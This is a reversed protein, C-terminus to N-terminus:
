PFRLDEEGKGGEWVSGERACGVFQGTEFCDGGGEVHGSVVLM